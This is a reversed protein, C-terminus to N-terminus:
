AEYLKAIIGTDVLANFKAIIQGPMKPTSKKIERDILRLM